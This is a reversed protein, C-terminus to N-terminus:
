EILIDLGIMKLFTDTKLENASYKRQCEKSDKPINFTEVEEQSKNEEEEDTQDSDEENDAEEQEEMHFGEFILLSKKKPESNINKVSFLM